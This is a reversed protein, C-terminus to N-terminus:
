NRTASPYFKNIINNLLLQNSNTRKILRKTVIQRLKASFYKLLLELKTLYPVNRLKVAM